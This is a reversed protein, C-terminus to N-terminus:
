PFKIFHHTITTSLEPCNIVILYSGAVLYDVPISISNEIGNFILIKFNVGDMGFISVTLKGVIKNGFGINLNDQTPNPWVHVKLHSQDQTIGVYDPGSDLLHPQHFGQTLHFQSNGLSVIAFEGITWEMKYGSDDGSGGCNSFVIPTTAYQAIVLTPFICTVFLVKIGLSINM